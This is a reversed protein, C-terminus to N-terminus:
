FSVAVNGVLGVSRFNSLGESYLARVLYKNDSKASFKGEVGLGVEGMWRTTAGESLLDPRAFVSAGVEVFPRVLSTVPLFSVRFANNWEAQNIRRKGGYITCDGIQEHAASFASRWRIMDDAQYEVMAGLDTRWGNVTDSALNLEEEYRTKALGLLGSMRWNPAPRYEIFGAAGLQSLKQDLGIGSQLNGTGYPAMAGWRFDEAQGLTKGVVFNRIIADYSRDGTGGSSKEFEGGLTPQDPFRSVTPREIFQSVVIQSSGITAADIGRMWSRNTARIMLGSAAKMTPRPISNGLAQGKLVLFITSEKRINYDSLTRGEELQNGAFILQQQDPPIGEKDQIKAKVNEITDSAEVELAITKGTPTKIFIQM